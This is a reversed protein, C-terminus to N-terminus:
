GVHTFTCVGNPSHSLQYACNQWMARDSEKQPKNFNCM